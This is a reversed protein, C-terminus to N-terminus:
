KLVRGVFEKFPLIESRLGNGVWRRTVLDHTQCPDRGHHDNVCTVSLPVVAYAVDVRPTDLAPVVKKLRDFLAQDFPEKLFFQFGRATKQCLTLAPDLRAPLDNTDLDLIM